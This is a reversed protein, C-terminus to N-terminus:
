DDCKQKMAVLNRDGGVLHRPCNPLREEREACSATLPTTSSTIDGTQLVPRPSEKHGWNTPCTQASIDRKSPEVTRLKCSLTDGTQPVPKQKKKQYHFKTSTPRLGLAIQRSREVGEFAPSLRRRRGYRCLISHFFEYRSNRKNRALPLRGSSMATFVSLEPM